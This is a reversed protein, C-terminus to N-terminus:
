LENKRAFKRLIRLLSFISSRDLNLKGEFFEQLTDFRIFEKRIQSRQSLAKYIVGDADYKEIM